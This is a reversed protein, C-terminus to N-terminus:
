CWRPSSSSCSAPPPSDATRASPPQERAVCGFQAFLEFFKARDFPKSYDPPLPTATPRMKVVVCYMRSPESKDLIGVRPGGLTIPTGAPLRRYFGEFNEPQSASSQLSFGVTTSNWGGYGHYREDAETAPDLWSPM